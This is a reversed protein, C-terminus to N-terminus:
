WASLTYLTGKFGETARRDRGAGQGTQHPLLQALHSQQLWVGGGPCTLCASSACSLKFFVLKYDNLVICVKGDINILSCNCETAGYFEGIRQIRFRRVFEEWVAPRLGNGIAVRVRHHAESPHFPQALLYRCIEGIYILAQVCACFM